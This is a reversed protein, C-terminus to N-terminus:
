KRDEKKFIFYLIIFTAVILSIWIMIKLFTNTDSTTVIEEEDDIIENIDEEVEEETENIVVVKKKSYSSGGGGPQQHSKIIVEKQGTLTFIITFNDPKYNQAISLIAGTSNTTINLGELNSSNDTVEWTLSQIIDVENTFDYYITEGAYIASVCSLLFIGLM